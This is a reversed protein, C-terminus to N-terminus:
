SQNAAINRGQAQLIEVFRRLAPPPVAQERFAVCVPFRWSLEKMPLITAEGNPSFQRVASRSTFTLLDSAAVIRQKLALSRTEFGVPPPPFGGERFRDLLWRQSILTPESLAWRERALEALSVDTRNALRHNAGLSVVFEEDYLHESCLGESPRYYNVVADLEGNLLAPFMVDNDSASVLLKTRPADKLLAAFAGALLDHSVPLGVGVRLHGARGESVDSIERAVSQLSLRLDRIRVLLTSGEPTLEVGKPTRSVLKVGLIQELRRLSKSLAPQSLRLAESARGLHGHEAIVAFYELDRLEM